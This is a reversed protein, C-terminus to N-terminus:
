TTPSPSPGLRRLTRATGPLLRTITGTRYRIVPMAERTLATIVLEGEEGDPLVRGTRPNIIEPYFHDEWLTLGDKTEVCEQAVGLGFIGSPDGIAVAHIDFRDEIVSRTWSAGAIIALRLSTMGPDIGATTIIAEPLLGNCGDPVVACGYKEIGDRLGCDGQVLWGPRLGAARLSRAIVARWHDIDRETYGILAPGAELRAIRSRPVAFLGFPYADRLDRGTTFPFRALDALSDLDDPHIRVADFALKHTPVREYAHRLTWRLRDTQLARLREIPWTEVPELTDEDPTLDAKTESM